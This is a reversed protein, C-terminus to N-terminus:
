KGVCFDAFIKEIIEESVEKGTIEGLARIAEKIEIAILELNNTKTKNEIVRSLRNKACILCAKHRENIIAPKDNNWNNKGLAKKVIEQELKRIGQGTKASVYFVPQGVIKHERPGKVLDIKNGVVIINRKEASLVKIKSLFDKKLGLNADFVLLVVESEEILQQTKRIGLSEIRNKAKRLGATDVIRVLVGHIDVEAEILDRTTGPIDTVIAREEKLFANLLSSKGVNPAGVIVSLIGTSLIKGRDANELIKNIKYLIKKIKTIQDSSNIDEPFDIMGEIYALSLLLEERLSNIEKSLKGQGQERASSFSGETKAKILGLVSEAQPLDIKGNLFARKTFEGKEAMRAHLKICLGLIKKIIYIGGHCSIEVVDEGTYTKPAKMYVALVNDILKKDFPSIINGFYVRHSLLKERKSFIQTLIQYAKSGSLRIVGIGANGLPTSLAVITDGCYGKKM